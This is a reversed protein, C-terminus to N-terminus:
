PALALFKAQRFVLGKACSWDPYMLLAFFNPLFNTEVLRCCQPMPAHHLVLVVSFSGTEADLASALAHCLLAQQRRLESDNEHGLGFKDNKSDAAPSVLLLCSARHQGAAKAAVASGPLALTPRPEMM